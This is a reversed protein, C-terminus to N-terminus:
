ISSKIQSKIIYFLVGIVRFTTLFSILLFSLLLSSFLFNNFAKSFINIVFLIIFVLVYEFIAIIFVKIIHSYISTNFILEIGTKIDEIKKYATNAKFTIIITLAAIVFGALSVNSSILNLLNNEQNERVYECLDNKFYLFILCMLIGFVFDILLPFKLYFDLGSLLAKKMIIEAKDSSVM